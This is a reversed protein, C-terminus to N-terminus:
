RDEQVGRRPPCDLGMPLPFCVMFVLPRRMKWRLVGNNLQFRLSGAAQCVCFGVPKHHWPGMGLSHAQERM